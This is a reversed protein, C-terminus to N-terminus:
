SNPTLLKLDERIKEVEIRQGITLEDENLRVFLATKKKIIGLLINEERTSIVMHDGFDDYIRIENM